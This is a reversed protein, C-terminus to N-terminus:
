TNLRVKTNNKKLLPIGSLHWQASPSDLFIEASLLLSQFVKLMFFLLTEKKRCITCYVTNPDQDIQDSPDSQGPQFGPTSHLDHKGIPTQQQAVSVEFSSTIRLSASFAPTPVEYKARITEAISSRWTQLYVCVCAWLEDYEDYDPFLIQIKISLNLRLRPRLRPSWSGVFSGM